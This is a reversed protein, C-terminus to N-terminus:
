YEYNYFIGNMTTIFGKAASLFSIIAEKEAIVRYSKGMCDIFLKSENYSYLVQMFPENFRSNKEKFYVCRKEPDHTMEVEPMYFKLYYDLDFAQVYVKDGDKEFFKQINNM